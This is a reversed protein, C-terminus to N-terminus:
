FDESSKPEEPTFMQVWGDWEGGVPMADIKMSSKGTESNKFIAGITVWRPKEEGNMEYTGNVAKLVKVKKSAM